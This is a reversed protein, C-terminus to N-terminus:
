PFLVWYLLIWNFECENIFGAVILIPKLHRLGLGWFLPFPFVVCSCLLIHKDRTSILSCSSSGALHPLGWSDYFLQCELMAAPWWGTFVQKEGSSNQNVSWDPLHCCHGRLIPTVWFGDSAVQPVSSSLSTTTVTNLEFNSGPICLHFILFDEPFHQCTSSSQCLWLHLTGSQWWSSFHPFCLNIGCHIVLFFLSPERNEFVTFPSFPACLWLHEHENDCGSNYFLQESTSSSAGCVVLAWTTCIFYTINFNLGM